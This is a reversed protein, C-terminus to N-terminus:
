SQEAEIQNEKAEKKGRPSRKKRGFWVQVVQGKQPGVPIQSTKAEKSEIESEANENNKKM